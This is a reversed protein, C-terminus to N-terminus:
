PTQQLKGTRERGGAPLFALLENVAAEEDGLHVSLKAAQLPAASELRRRLEPGLRALDKETTVFAEGGHQRLLEILEAVDAETFRHHDRWGRMAAVSCGSSRLGSYFEEPRAIACFAVVRAVQPVELRREM